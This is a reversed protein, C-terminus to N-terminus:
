LREGTECILDALNELYQAGTVTRYVMVNRRDREDRKREVLDLKGMSDLARTIVPKTVQLKRALGRITHPPPELYVIFLIAMQRQSLDPENSCVQDQLVKQWLALANTRNLGRVAM